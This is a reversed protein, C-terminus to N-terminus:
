IWWGIRVIKWIKRKTTEIITSNKALQQKGM